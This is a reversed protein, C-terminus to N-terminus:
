SDPGRTKVSKIIKLQQHEATWLYLHLKKGEAQKAHDHTRPMKYSGKLIAPTALQRNAKGPVCYANALGMNSRLVNQIMKYQVASIHKEIQTINDKECKNEKITKMETM